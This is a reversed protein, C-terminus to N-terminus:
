LRGRWVRDTSRLRQWEQRHFLRLEGSTEKLVSAPDEGALLRRNRSPGDPAKALAKNVESEAKGGPTVIAGFVGAKRGGAKRNIDAVAKFTEPQDDDEDLDRGAVWAPTLGAATTAARLKKLDGPDNIGSNPGLPRGAKFPKFVENM